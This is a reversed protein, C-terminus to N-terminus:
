KKKHEPGAVTHGGRRKIEAEPMVKDGTKYRDRICMESGV